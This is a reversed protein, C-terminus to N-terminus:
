RWSLGVFGPGIGDVWAALVQAQRHLHRRMSGSFGPLAGRTVTLMRREYGDLLAERGARTLSVGGRQEDRHGHEPGLRDRRVLEMVVQDVVLPRFEEMLDLVLSPRGDRETHLFGVAPELGAAALAAVAESLLVAYGFSLGSNIVDLPPRRNRGSFGVEAPLVAAWAHFYARAAAGELGMVDSRDTAQPVMAAYGRMSAVAQSLDRAQERRTLRQLLVAQKGIKADVISRAVPLYQEPDETRALQRRLRQVRGAHGSVAQGLYNGRQSCFVLDVGTSLAWNRLGASVGVAGFCVIRAVLGAPADLVEVDDHEVVVRGQEIRTRSGQIGAYLTRREPVEVRLEVVPPYRPGFDEGLFCFGDAFSMIQTKDAGLTMGIEEAAGSAVRAAEKAEREDSVAVAVDDAYRVLPFGADRLRDDFDELILNALLPSLPSGQALGRAPRVTKEGSRRAARGLFLNLVALLEGDGTLVDLLRRVRRLDVSPFCDHLDTRLVWTFGEDRLRALAQVADVVGLGPRFGFSSPALLPDLRPSLVSLLAREVVRDGVPPCECSGSAAM